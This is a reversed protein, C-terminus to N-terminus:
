LFAPFHKAIAEIAAPPGFCLLALGGAILLTGLVAVLNAPAGEAEIHLSLLRFLVRDRKVTM